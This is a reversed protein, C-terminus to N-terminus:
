GSAGAAALRSPHGIGPWPVLVLLLRADTVARVARRENPEFHVMLGAAGTVAEGNQSIEITGDVVLLYAGEHVQHEQLEEGAPLAILITRSEDDSRLVQPRHPEISLSPIDWSQM